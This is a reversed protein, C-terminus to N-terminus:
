ILSTKRLCLSLIYITEKAIDKVNPSNPDTMDYDIIMKSIAEADIAKNDAPYKGLSRVFRKEYDDLAMLDNDTMEFFHYAFIEQKTPWDLSVFTGRDTTIFKETIRELLNELDDGISIATEKGGVIGGSRQLQICFDRNTLHKPERSLVTFLVKRRFDFAQIAQELQTQTGFDKDPILPFISQRRSM